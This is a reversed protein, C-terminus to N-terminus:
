DKQYYLKGGEPKVWFLGGKPGRCVKGSDCPCDGVPALQHRFDWPPIAKPDAWLGRREAKAKTEAAEYLTRDVPTQEDAYHRYWWVLGAQVMALIVDQGQYLLKGVTRGYRDTKNSEVQIEKGGVLSTLKQKAKTGYSQGTEPADIGALRVRTPTQGVLVDVTDGDLIRVVKGSFTDAFAAGQHAVLILVWRTM